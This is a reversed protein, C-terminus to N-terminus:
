KEKRKRELFLNHFDVVVHTNYQIAKILVGFLITLVGTFLGLESFLLVIPAYDSNSSLTLAHIIFSAFLILGGYTPMMTRHHGAFHIWRYDREQARFSVCIDLYTLMGEPTAMNRVAQIAQVSSNARVERVFNDEGFHDIGDQKHRFAMYINIGIKFVYFIEM